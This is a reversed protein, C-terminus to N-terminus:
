SGGLNLGDGESCGLGLASNYSDLTGGDIKLLTNLPDAPTGIIAGGSVMDIGNLLTNMDSIAGLAATTQQAGAAMNLVAAILQSGGIIYGNGGKPPQGTPLFLLLEAQTYTIGGIMMTKAAGNYTVGGVVISADPWRSAKHWFGKTAPCGTGQPPCSLTTADEQDKFPDAFAIFPNLTLSLSNPFYNVTGDREDQVILSGAPPMDSARVGWIEATSAITEHSAEGTTGDYVSLLYGYDVGNIRISCTPGASFDVAEPRPAVSGSLVNTAPCGAQPGCLTPSFAWVGTGAAPGADVGAFIWGAHLVLSLPAVHPAEIFDTGSPNAFAAVLAATQDLVRVGGTGSVIM